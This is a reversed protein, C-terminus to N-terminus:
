YKKTYFVLANMALNQTAPSVKGKVALHTLFAEM